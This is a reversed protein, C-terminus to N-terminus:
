VVLTPLVFPVLILARVIRRGPFEFRALVYAGPLGVLLTALTSVVAQWLTFWAVGRLGPDSFVDVFPQATLRGDPALGRLIIAVLPYLFFYGIFVLPVAILLAVIASAPRSRTNM